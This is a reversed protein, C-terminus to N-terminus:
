RCFRWPRAVIVGIIESFVGAPDQWKRGPATCLLSVDMFVNESDREVDMDMIGISIGPGMRAAARSAYGDRM